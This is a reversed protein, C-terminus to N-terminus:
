LDTVHFFYFSKINDLLIHGSLNIFRGEGVVKVPNEQHHELGLIESQSSNM